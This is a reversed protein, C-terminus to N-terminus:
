SDERAIPLTFCFTAGQDPNNEAWISGGHAQIINQCIALGMGLGEPKTTYLTEFLRDQHAEDLGVGFDRVSVKVGQDERIETRVVLGPFDLMVPNMAAVANLTLNLLVQQLQVRDGRVRPLGPALETVISLGKMIADGPLLDLYEQIVSNLDLVSYHPDQKKLLAQVSRIVEAARQDDRIIGHLAASVKSLNPEAGALFRQAANAYNLIAALPQNLEHALSSTLEGMATVRTVHSLEDRHQQAKSEATKRATVDRNSARFGQFQGKQDIVPQCGHDIWRIEGDRALIRFQIEQSKFETRAEDKHRDWIGRDEAIIIEYRLSPNDLFEQPSYGTIRECSPSVYHLRGDPASWYEWDHTYDAVTRYRLESSAV